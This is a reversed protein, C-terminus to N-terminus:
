EEPTSPADPDAVRTFWAVAHKQILVPEDDGPLAVAVTYSDWGRLLGTLASGNAFHVCVRKGRNRAFWLTQLSPASAAPATPPTPTKPVAGPKPAAKTAEANM